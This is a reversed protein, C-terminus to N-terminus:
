NILEKISRNKISKETVKKYENTESIESFGISNFSEKRKNIYAILSASTKPYVIQLIRELTIDKRKTGELIYGNFVSNYHSDAFNVFAMCIKIWNKIKTFNTTGSHSRFELTYSTCKKNRPVANAPNRLGEVVQIAARDRIVEEEDRIVEEEDRRRPAEKTNFVAPVFNLWCYRPTSHDYGCRAGRPHNTFKNYNKSPYSKALTKFIENYYNEIRIKLDESSDLNTFNFDLIPLPKCYENNRRSPPLIDYLDRELIQGLKWASVIFTQNFTAGGIHIHVGCKKDIDTRKALENCLGQTNEFGKDGKMVGTVYEGGSISGDRVTKFNYLKGLYNPVIGKSTEIEVGFTYNRGETILFTPSDTGNKYDQLKDGTIKKTHNAELYTRPTGSLDKSDPLVFLGFKINEKFGKSELLKKSIAPLQGVSNNYLIPCYYYEAVNGYKLNTIAGNTVTFDSVVKHLFAIHDLEGTLDDIVLNKDKKHYWNNRIFICESKPLVNGKYDTVKENKNELM